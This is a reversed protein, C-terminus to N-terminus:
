NVRDLPVISRLFIEKQVGLSVQADYNVLLNSNGRDGKIRM